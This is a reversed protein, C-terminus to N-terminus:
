VEIEPVFYCENALQDALIDCINKVATNYHEEETLQRKGVPSVLIQEAAKSNEVVKNAAKCIANIEADSFLGNISNDKAVTVRM